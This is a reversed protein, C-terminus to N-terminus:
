SERTRVLICTINDRGGARNAAEILDGCLQPLPLERGAIKAIEEDTLEGTLGDSALLYLDGAMIDIARVSPVVETEAGIARTIVNRVPSTRAQEPTIEGRRLQEAVLSHDQTLQLLRRGRLLYCRSDGAHGIWGRGQRAALAVLTTGMGALGPNRAVEALVAANAARGANEITEITPIKADMAGLMTEAAIRSALEGAVAGGMGDCLVFNGLSGDPELFLRFSDENGPRFRGRDTAGAAEYRIAM